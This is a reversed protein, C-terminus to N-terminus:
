DIVINKIKNFVIDVSIDSIKDNKIISVNKGIPACLDPNSGSGFLVLTNLGCSSILHMPGTDNGIACKAYSSLFVIDKFSTKGAYNAPMISISKELSKIINNFNNFEEKGGLLISQIGIKSLYEILKAFNETPWKKNIRHKAAGAVMIVFADRPVINRNEYNKALWKWDPLHDYKIGAFKLQDKQRDLTHLLKRDKNLQRYKSGIAIGSWYSKKYIFFLYFYLNSRYSTQLDYVNKYQFKNFFSKLVKWDKFNHFKPKNDVVVMDFWPCSKLLKEFKITTLCIIYDNKHHNRIAKMAAGALIIDGFAGHKIVLINNKM